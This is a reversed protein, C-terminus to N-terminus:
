LPGLDRINLHNKKKILANAEGPPPGALAPGPTLGEPPPGADVPGPTLDGPSHGAKAPRLTGM